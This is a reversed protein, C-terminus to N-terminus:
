DKDLFKKILEILIETKSKNKKIAKISFDEWLKSNIRFTIQRPNKKIM